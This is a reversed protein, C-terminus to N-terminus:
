LHWIKLLFATNRTLAAFPKISLWGMILVVIYLLACSSAYILRVAKSEDTPALYLQSSHLTFLNVVRAQIVNGIIQCRPKGTAFKSNLKWSNRHSFELLLKNQTLNKSSICYMCKQDNRGLKFTSSASILVRVCLFCQVRTAHVSTLCVCSSYSLCALTQYDVYKFNLELCHEVRSIALSINCRNM